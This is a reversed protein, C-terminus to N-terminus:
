VPIGSVVSEPVAHQRVSGDNRSRWAEVALVIALGVLWLLAISTAVFELVGGVQTGFRLVSLMGGTASILAVAIASGLSFRALRRFRRDAAVQLMVFAAGAFGLVASLTHILDQWTFAPGVPLPCYATCTVQSAIGFAVAAGALVVAPPVVALWRIRPTLPPAALAVLAAAVSVLVLAWRFTAATPEGDAGLESVYLFRSASLRAVWILGLGAGAAAAALWLMGSRVRPWPSLM